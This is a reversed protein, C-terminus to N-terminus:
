EALIAAELAAGLEIELRGPEPFDYDGEAIAITWPELNALLGPRSHPVHHAQAESLLWAAIELFWLFRRQNAVFALGDESGCCIAAAWLHAVPGFKTWTKRLDSSSTGKLGGGLMKSIGRIAAGSGVHRGHSQRLCLPALLVWAAITGGHVVDKGDGKIKPARVAFATARECWVDFADARKLELALKSDIEFSDERTMVEELGHLVAAKLLADQLTPNDPSLMLALIRFSTFVFQEESLDEPLLTITPM